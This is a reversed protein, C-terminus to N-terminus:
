DQDNRPNNGEQNHGARFIRLDRRRACRNHHDIRSGSRFIHLLQDYVRDLLLNVLQIIDFPDIGHACVTQSHDSDLKMHPDIHVVGIRLQNLLDVADSVLKGIGDGIQCDGPPVQRIKHDNMLNSQDGLCGAIAKQILFGIAQLFHKLFDITYFFHFYPGNRSM